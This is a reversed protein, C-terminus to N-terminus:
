CGTYPSRRRILYSIHAMAAIPVAAITYRARSHLM